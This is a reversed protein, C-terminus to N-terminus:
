RKAEERMHRAHWQPSYPVTDEEDEMGTMYRIPQALVALVPELDSVGNSIALALAATANAKALECRQRVSFKVREDQIVGPSSLLRMAEASLTRTEHLHEEMQAQWRVGVDASRTLDEKGPCVMKWRQERSMRQVHAEHPDRRACASPIMRFGDEIIPEEGPEDEVKDPGPETPPVPAKEDIRIKANPATMEIRLIWKTPLDQTGADPRADLSLSQNVTGQHNFGLFKLVSMRDSRRSDNTWIFMYRKGRELSELKHELHPDRTWRPTM